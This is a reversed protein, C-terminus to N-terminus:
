QKDSESKSPLIRKIDKKVPNKQPQTSKLILNEVELILIKRERSEDNRINQIEKEVIEFHKELLTHVKEVFRTFNEELRDHDKKFTELEKNTRELKESLILHERLASAIDKLSIM